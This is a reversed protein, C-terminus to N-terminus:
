TLQGRTLSREPAGRDTVSRLLAQACRLSLRRDPSLFFHTEFRRRDRPSLCGFAYDYILESEIMEIRAAFRRRTLLRVEVAEQELPTARHLLYDTITRDSLGKKHM